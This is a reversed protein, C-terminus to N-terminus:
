NLQRSLKKIVERLGKAYEEIIRLLEDPRSSDPEPAEHM